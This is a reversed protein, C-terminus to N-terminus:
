KTDGTALAELAAVQADALSVAYLKICLLADRLVKVQEALADRESGLKAAERMAESRENHAITWLAQLNAIEAQQAELADVLRGVLLTTSHDKGMALDFERHLVLWASTTEILEKM